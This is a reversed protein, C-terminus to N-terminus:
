RARLLVDRQRPPRPLGATARRRFSLLRWRTQRSDRGDGFARALAADLTRANGFLSGTLTAPAARHGKAGLPKEIQPFEHRRGILRASHAFCRDAIHQPAVADAPEIRGVHETDELPKARSSSIAHHSALSTCKRTSNAFFGRNIAFIELSIALASAFLRRPLGARQKLSKRHVVSSLQLRSRRTTPLASNVAPSALGRKTTVESFLDSHL